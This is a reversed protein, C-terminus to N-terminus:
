KPNAFLESVAAKYKRSVPLEVATDGYRISLMNNGKSFTTFFGINVIYSRHIRMFQSYKNLKADLAKLTVRVPVKRQNGNEDIQFLDVYNDDAKFYVVENIKFHLKENGNGSITFESDNQVGEVVIDQFFISRAYLAFPFYCFAFLLVVALWLQCYEFFNVCQWNCLLGRIIFLVHIFSIIKILWLSFDTEQNTEPTRKYLKTSVFDITYLNVIWFIGIPLLLFFLLIEPINSNYIGFPQTIALFLWIFLGSGLTFM